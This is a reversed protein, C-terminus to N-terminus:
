RGRKDAQAFARDWVGSTEWSRLAAVVEVMDGADLKGSEIDPLVDREVWADFSGFAIVFPSRVPM